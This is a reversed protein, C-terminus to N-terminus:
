APRRLPSRRTGQARDIETPRHQNHCYKEHGHMAVFISKCKPRQCRRLRTWGQHEYIERLAQYAWSHALLAGAWYATPESGYPPFPSPVDHIRARAGTRELHTFGDRVYKAVCAAAPSESAVIPVPEGGLDLLLSWGNAYNLMRIVYASPQWQRVKDLQRRASTPM